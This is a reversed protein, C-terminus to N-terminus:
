DPDVLRRRLRENEHALDRLRRAQAFSIPAETTAPPDSRGPGITEVGVDEMQRWRARVRSVKAKAPIELDFQDPLFTTNHVVLRAGGKSINRILCDVVIGCRAFAIKGGLYAPWRQEKRKDQVAGGRPM